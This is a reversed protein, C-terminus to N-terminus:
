THAANLCGSAAASQALALLGRPHVALVAPSSLSADSGQEWTYVFYGLFPQMGAGLKNRNHDHCSMGSSRYPDQQGAM